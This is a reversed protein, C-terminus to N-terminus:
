LPTLGARDSTIAIYSQYAAKTSYREPMEDQEYRAIVAGCLTTVATAPQEANIRLLVAQVLSSKRAAPNSRISTWPASRSPEGSAAARLTSRRTDFSGYRREKRANKGRWVEM